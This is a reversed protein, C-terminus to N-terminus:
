QVLTEIDVYTSEYPYTGGSILPDSSTVRLVYECKDTTAGVHQPTYIDEVWQLQYSPVAEEGSAYVVEITKTTESTSSGFDVDVDKTYVVTEQSDNVIRVVEVTVLCSGKGRVSVSPYIHTEYYSDIFRAYSKNNGSTPIEITFSSISAPITPTPTVYESDAWKYARGAFSSDSRVFIIKDNQPPDVDVFPTSAPFGYYMGDPLFTSLIERSISAGLQGNFYVTTYLEAGTQSSTEKRVNFLNVLNPYGEDGNELPVQVGGAGTKTAYYEPKMLVKYEDGTSPKQGLSTIKYVNLMVVGKDVEPFMENSVYPSATAETYLGTEDNYMKIYLKAKDGEDFALSNMADEVLFSFDTGSTKAAVPLDRLAVTASQGNYVWTSGSKQWREITLRAAKTVLYYANTYDVSFVLINQACLDVSTIEIYPKTNLGGDNLVTYNVGNKVLHLKGKRKDAHMQNYLPRDAQSVPERLLGIVCEKGETDTKHWVDHCFFTSEFTADSQYEQLALPMLAFVQKTTGSDKDNLTNKSYKDATAAM